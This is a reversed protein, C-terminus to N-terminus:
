RLRQGCEVRSVRLSFPSGRCVNRWPSTIRQLVKYIRTVVLLRDPVQVSLRFITCAVQWAGGGVSWLLAIRIM